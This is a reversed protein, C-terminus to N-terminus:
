LRLKFIRVMSPSAWPADRCCVFRMLMACIVQTFSRACIRLCSFNQGSLAFSHVLSSSAWVAYELVVCGVSMDSLCPCIDFLCVLWQASLWPWSATSHAGPEAVGTACVRLCMILILM